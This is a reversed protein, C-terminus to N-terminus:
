WWKKPDEVEKETAIFTADPSVKVTIEPLPIIEQCLLRIDDIHLCLAREKYKALESESDSIFLIPKDEDDYLCAMCMEETYHIFSVISQGKLSAIDVHKWKKGDLVKLAAKM